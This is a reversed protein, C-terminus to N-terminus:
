KKGHNVELAGWIVGGREALNEITEMYDGALDANTQSINEGHGVVAMAHIRALIQGLEDYLESQTAKPNITFVGHTTSM